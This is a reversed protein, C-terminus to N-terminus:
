RPMMIAPTFVRITKPAARANTTMHFARETPPRARLPYGRASRLFAPAAHKTRPDSRGVTGIRVITQAQKDRNSSASESPASSPIPLRPLRERQAINQRGVIHGPGICRRPGVFPRASSANARFRRLGSSRRGKQKWRPVLGGFRPYGRRSEPIGAPSDPIRPSDHAPRDAGACLSGASNVRPGIM